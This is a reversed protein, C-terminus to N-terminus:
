ERCCRAFVGAINGLRSLEGIWDAFAHFFPLQNTVDRM